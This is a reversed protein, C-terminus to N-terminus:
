SSNTVRSTPTSRGIYMESPFLMTTEFGITEWREANVLAEVPRTPVPKSHGDLAVPLQRGESQRLGSTFSPSMTNVPGISFTLEEGAKHGGVALARIESEECVLQQLFRGRKGETRYVIGVVPNSTRKGEIYTMTGTWSAGFEEEGEPKVEAQAEGLVIEGAFKADLTHCEGGQEGVCERFALDPAIVTVHAGTLVILSEPALAGCTIRQGGGGLTITMESVPQLIGSKFASNTYQM